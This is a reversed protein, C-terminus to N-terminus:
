LFDLTNVVGYLESTYFAAVTNVILWSMNNSLTDKCELLVVTDSDFLLLHSM